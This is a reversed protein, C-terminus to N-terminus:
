KIPKKKFLRFGIVGAIVIVAVIIVISTVPIGAAGVPVLIHKIEIGKLFETETVNTLVIVDLSAEKGETPEGIDLAIVPERKIVEARAPM